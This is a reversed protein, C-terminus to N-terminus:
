HGKEWAEARRTIFPTPKHESYVTLLYSLKFKAGEAYELRKRDLGQTASLYAFPDLMTFYRADGFMVLMVPRGGMLGTASTWRAPIVNQTNPGPYPLSASNQFTAVHNFSEPLRVGLGDYNPGSITVKGAFPGVEFQSEWRLAVEHNTEDVTLTLNRQEILLAAERSDAAERKTPPLWHIVEMFHATPVGNTDVLAYQLPMEIHKEVGAAGKEEWFNIGNVWVAYMMGHHHLHDPPADRTVNEGRLTYLERVYPKFQNTAFAYVLLKHGKYRVELRGQPIDSNITIPPSAALAPCALALLLALAAFSAGAHQRSLGYSARLGATLRREKSEPTTVASSLTPSCLAKM